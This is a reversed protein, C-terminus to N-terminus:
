SSSLSRVREVLEANAPTDVGTALGRRVVYGNLYDIETRRGQMVDQRMSSINDQTDEVVQQVFEKTTDLELEVGDKNAVNVLEELVRPAMEQYYLGGKDHHLIQGNSCDLLATLPNIVCNAALKQWLLAKMANTDLSKAVLGSQDWLQALPGDNEVFTKGIGAHVVHYMEDDDDDDDDDRYVGHSTSALTLTHPIQEQQLYDQVQDRLALAGNCLIIIRPHDMLRHQISRLADVADPAKTSLILNQIPSQRSLQLPTTRVSATDKTDNPQQVNTSPILEARIRCLRPRGQLDTVCVQMWQKTTTTAGQKRLSTAENDDITGNGSLRNEHHPRLLMTIPYSPFAIRISSGFLLGISGSGLVHLREMFPLMMTTMTLTM